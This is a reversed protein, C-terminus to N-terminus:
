YWYYISNYFQNGTSSLASMVSLSTGLSIGCLVLGVIAPKISLGRKKRRVIAVIGLVLGIIGLALSVLGFMIGQRTMDDLSGRTTVVSPASVLSVISVVISAIGMLISVIAM